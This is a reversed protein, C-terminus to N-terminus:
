ATSRRWLVDRVEAVMNRNLLLSAVGYALMGGLVEVLLALPRPQGALPARLLTVAGFMLAACLLAPGTRRAVAEAGVGIAALMRRMNFFLVVPYALLWAYAVGKIGWRTGLYFAPPMVLCSLLVNRLNIGPQGLADTVTPLMQALTRFPMVLCLVQLPLV